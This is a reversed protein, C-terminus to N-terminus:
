APLCPRSSRPPRGAGGLDTSAAVAGPSRGGGGWPQKERGIKADKDKESPFHTIRQSIGVAPSEDTEKKRLLCLLPQDPLRAVPAGAKM